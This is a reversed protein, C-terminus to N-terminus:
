PWGYEADFRSLESASIKFLADKLDAAHAVIAVRRNAAAYYEDHQAMWGPFQDIVKGAIASNIVGIDINRMVDDCTRVRDRAIADIEGALKSREDDVMTGAFSPGAPESVDADLPLAEPVPAQEVIETAVYEPAETTDAQLDSRVYDGGDGAVGSDAGDGPDARDPEVGGRLLSDDGLDNPQPEAHPPEKPSYQQEYFRLAEACAEVTELPHSAANEFQGPATERAGPWRGRAQWLGHVRHVQLGTWGPLLEVLRAHAQAPGANLEAMAQTLTVADEPRKDPDTM